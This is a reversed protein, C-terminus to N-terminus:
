EDSVSASPRGFLIGALINLGIAQWFTIKTLGFLTPILWNWLVMVPLGLVLACLAVFIIGLFMGKLVDFFVEM